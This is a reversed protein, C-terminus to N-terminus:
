GRWEFLFGDDDNEDYADRVMDVFRFGVSWSVFFRCGDVNREWVMVRVRRGNTARSKVRDVLFRGIGHRRCRPAVALNDIVLEDGDRHWAVYAMVQQCDNVAVFVNAGWVGKRASHFDWASWPSLFSQQEILMVPVLDSAIMRRYSIRTTTKTTM